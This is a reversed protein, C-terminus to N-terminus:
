VERLGEDFSIRMIEPMGMYCNGKQLVRERCTDKLDKDQALDRIVAFVLWLTTLRQQGDLLDNQEYDASGDIPTYMHNRFVYTGLFFQADQRERYMDSIDQLLDIVEDSEWVYQRQYNPILYWKQFVDKILIKDANIKDNQM